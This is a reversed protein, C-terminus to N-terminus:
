RACTRQTASWGRGSTWRRTPRWRPWKANWTVGSTPLTYPVQCPTALRPSAYRHSSYRHGWWAGLWAVYKWHDTELIKREVASRRTAESADRHEKSLLVSLRRRDALRAREDGFQSVASSAVPAAKPLDAEAALIADRRALAQVVSPPNQRTQVVPKPAPPMNRKSRTRAHEAEAERKAFHAAAAATKRQDLAHAAHLVAAREAISRGLGVRVKSRTTKARRTRDAAEQKRVTQIVDLCADDFAIDDSRQKAVSARKRAAARRNEERAAYAGRLKAQRRAKEDRVAREHDAVGDDDYSQVQAAERDSRLRRGVDDKELVAAWTSMRSRQKGRARALADRHQLAAALNLVEFPDEKPM